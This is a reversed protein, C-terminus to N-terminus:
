RLLFYDLPGHRARMAPGSRAREGRQPPAAAPQMGTATNTRMVSFNVKINRYPFM